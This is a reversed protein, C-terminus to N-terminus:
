KENEFHYKKDHSDKCCSCMLKSCCYMYFLKDYDGCQPCDGDEMIEYKSKPMNILSRLNLWKKKVTLYNMLICMLINPMVLEILLM